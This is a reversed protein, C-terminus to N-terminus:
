LKWALWLIGGILVLIGGIGANFIIMLVGFIILIVANYPIPKGPRFVSLLTLIALIVGFISSSTNFVLPTGFFYDITYIWARVNFFGFIAQLLGIIGGVIVIYRVSIKKDKEEM